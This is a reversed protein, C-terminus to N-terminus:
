FGEHNEDLLEGPPQSFWERMNSWFGEPQAAPAEQASSPEAVSSVPTPAPAAATASEQSAGGQELRAVEASRLAAGASELATNGRSVRRGRNLYRQALDLEDRKISRQALAAYREAIQERLRKAEANGPDRELVQQIYDYASDGKPTTLKLAKVRAGAAALLTAVETDSATPLSAAEPPTTAALQDLSPVDLPNAPEALDESLAPGVLSDAPGESDLELDFALSDSLAQLEADDLAALPESEGPAEEGGELLVAPEAAATDPMAPPSEPAPANAVVVPASEPIAVIPPTSLPDDAPSWLWWLLLLLPVAAAMGLWQWLPRGPASQVLTIEALEEVPQDDPPIELDAEDIESLIQTEGIIATPLNNASDSDFGPDAGAERLQSVVEAGSAPREEPAKALMREIIPQWHALRPPLEPIPAQQHAMLIKGVSEGTFPRRSTLMEYFVVGLSYIDARGDLELEGRALEPSVYFPSGIVSGALTLETDVTQWRAVGFDTLVPTKDRRFLINAPKIDRHIVGHSHVFDLCRALRAIIGAATLPRIGKQIQRGLDGGSLYEMSFFPRQSIVGVDYIPVINSHNLDAIGRAENLFRKNFDSDREGSLVKIAVRRNLSEQRALYVSGMGGRAIRKEIRYGPIKTTKDTAAM